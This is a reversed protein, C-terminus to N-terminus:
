CYLVAKSPPANGKGKGMVPCKLVTDMPSSRILGCPAPLFLRHGLVLYIVCLSIPTLCFCSLHSIYGDM